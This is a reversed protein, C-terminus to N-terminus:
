EEGFHGMEIAVEGDDVTLVWIQGYGSVGDAEDAGIADFFDPLTYSHGCHLVTEGAHDTVVLAALEDEPDIDTRVELGHDDATPQCTEQTRAKETAYVATIPIEAMVEVLALAREAGEDTLGPDDGEPEKEAHRVAWVVVPDLDPGTDTDTDTDTDSDSDTDADTDTDADSSDSDGYVVSESSNDPLQTEPPICCLIWLM